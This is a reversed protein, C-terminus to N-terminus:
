NSLRFLSEQQHCSRSFNAPSQTGSKQVCPRVTYNWLATVNDMQDKQIPGQAFSPNGKGGIGDKRQIRPQKTGRETTTFTTPSPMREFLFDAEDFDGAFFSVGLLYLCRVYVMSYSNTYLNWLDSTDILKVFNRGASVGNAAQRM